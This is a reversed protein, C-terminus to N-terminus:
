SGAQCPFLRFIECHLFITPGQSSHTSFILECGTSLFRILSIKSKFGSIIELQNRLQYRFVPLQYIGRARARVFKDTFSRSFHCFIMQIDTPLVRSLALVGVRLDYRPARSQTDDSSNTLRLAFLTRIVVCETRLCEECILRRNRARM